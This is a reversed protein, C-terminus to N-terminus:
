RRLHRVGGLARRGLHALRPLIASPAVPLDAATGLAARAPGAGNFHDFLQATATATSTPEVWGVIASVLLQSTPGEPRLVLQTSRPFAALNLVVREHWRPYRSRRLDDIEHAALVDGDASLVSFAGRSESLDVEVMGPAAPGWDVVIEAAPDCRILDVGWCQPQQHLTVGQRPQPLRLLPFRTDGIADPSFDYTLDVWARGFGAPALHGNLRLYDTLAVEDRRLPEDFVAWPHWGGAVVGRTVEDDFFLEFDHYSVTSGFRHFALAPDDADGVARALDRPSRRLYRLALDLPLMQVYQLQTSHGDLPILRNPTECIVVLGHGGVAEHAARLITEREALTLHELVAYLIICDLPEEIGFRQPATMVEAGNACLFDVNATGSAAAAKQAFAIADADLDVGWYRRFLPAWALSKLGRSCGVELANLRSLDRGLGALIPTRHFIASGIRELSYTEPLLEAVARYQRAFRERVHDDVAAPLSPDFRSPQLAAIEADSLARPPVSM